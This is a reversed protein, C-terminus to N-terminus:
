PQPTMSENTSDVPQVNTPETSVKWQHEVELQSRPTIYLEADISLVRGKKVIAYVVHFINALRHFIVMSLLWNVLGYYTLPITYFIAVFGAVWVSFCYGCGILNTLFTATKQKFSATPEGDPYAIKRIYQRVGEFIKADICLETLAEVGLSVLLITLCSEQLEPKFM